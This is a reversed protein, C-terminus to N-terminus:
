KWPDNTDLPATGPKKKPVPLDPMDDGAPKQPKPSSPAVGGGARKADSRKELGLELEVDREFSLRRTLTEYGPAEAKLEHESSDRTFTGGFPNGELEEGDLSLKAEKPTVKIKVEIRAPSPESTVLPAIEATERAPIVVPEPEREGRSGLLLVGTLALVATALGAAVGIAVARGKRVARMQTSPFTVSAVRSPPVSPPGAPLNPAYYQAASASPQSGSTVRPGVHPISGDGPGSGSLQAQIVAALNARESAFLEVLFQGIQRANIRETRALLYNELDRRMESASQYRHERANALARECIRDLEPDIRPNAERARPIEGQALAQMIMVESHSGWMRIQTAAEWLMVGVAFLDARRDVGKQYLQEPAMYNVKGKVMGTRTEVSSTVTKAIGFDCLKVQGTYTVFVNHPTVDRHVVGLPRGDYDCLDHAYELASLVECLIHVHWAPSLGGAKSARRLIRHLPQGDLYEMAIYYQDGVVQVENTQVINTHNLRAALRGEDLFMAQHEPEEMLEPKLLKLVVLKQFGVSGETVALFVEAMGGQGLRAILRYNGLNRAFPGPPQAAAQVEPMIGAPGATPL